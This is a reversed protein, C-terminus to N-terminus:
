QMLARMVKDIKEIAQKLEFKSKDAQRCIREFDNQATRDPVSVQLQLYQPVKLNQIGNTQNGLRKILPKHTQYLYYLAAFLYRSNIVEAPRLVQTFNNALFVGEEEFYVLRGVPNDKTGGSKELIIDGKKLQKKEVKKADITRVVVDTLDLVGENTFNTTRIVKTGSDDSCDAGWEGSVTEQLLSEITASPYKEAGDQPFGFQSIFQSKLGDFKSKDAQRCISELDNQLEIPPLGIMFNELFDARVRQQGGTGSMNHAAKERFEPLKTLTFLWYSNSKGDIPRLVHFETSGMGIGNTLDHAIAGKGNEMCPTIKAFLVDGNEFYTFGKKVSDYESDSVDQLYGEESVSPMPVFSVPDSDSITVKSRKPNIVCCDGLRKLPYKQEDVMPNGFMEIFQSQVVM